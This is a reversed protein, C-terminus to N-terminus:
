STKSRVKGNLKGDKIRFSVIFPYDDYAPKRDGVDADSQVPVILDQKSNAEKSDIVGDFVFLSQFLGAATTVNDAKSSRWLTQIARLSAMGNAGRSSDSLTQLQSLADAISTASLDRSLEVRMPVTNITPGMIIEDND